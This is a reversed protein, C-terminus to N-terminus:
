QVHPPTTESPSTMMGISCGIIALITGRACASKAVFLFCTAAVGGCPLRRTQFGISRQPM